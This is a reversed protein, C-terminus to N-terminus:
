TPPSLRKIIRKIGPWCRATDTKLALLQLLQRRNRVLIEPKWRLDKVLQRYDAPDHSVIVSTKEAFIWQIASCYGHERLRRELHRAHRQAFPHKAISVMELLATPAYRVINWESDCTALHESIVALSPTSASQLASLALMLHMWGNSHRALLDRISESFETKRIVFISIKIYEVIHEVILTADRVVHVPEPYNFQRTPSDPPQRFSFLLVDPDHDRLASVIRPLSGDLPLDDDAMLWVWQGGANRYVSLVNGDFGRNETQRISNLAVGRADFEAIVQPTDDRSANDSVLIDVEQQLGASIIQDRLVGLLRKLKPAREFTPIAVTLFAM